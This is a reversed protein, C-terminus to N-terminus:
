AAFSSPVSSRHPSHVARRLDMWRTPMTSRQAWLWAKSYGHNEIRLLLVHQLDAMVRLNHDAMFKEHGASDLRWHQGDWMLNGTLATMWGHIAAVGAGVVTLGVFVKSVNSPQSSFIWFCFLAVGTLWLGLLVFGQLRSCM